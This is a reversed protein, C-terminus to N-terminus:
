WRGSELYLQYLIATAAPYFIAYGTLMNIVVWKKEVPSLRFSSRRGKEEEQKQVSAVAANPLYTM